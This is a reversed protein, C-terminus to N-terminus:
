LVWKGSSQCTAITKSGPRQIAAYKGRFASDPISPRAPEQRSSSMTSSDPAGGAEAPPSCRAAPAALARARTRGGRTPPPPNKAESLEAHFLEFQGFAQANKSKAAIADGATTRQDARPTSDCDTNCM